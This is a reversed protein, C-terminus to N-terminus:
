YHLCINETFSIIEPLIISSQPVTASPPPLASIEIQQEWGELNMRLRLMKKVGLSFHKKSLPPTLPPAPCYPFTVIKRLEQLPEELILVVNKWGCM